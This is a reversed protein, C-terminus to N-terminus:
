VKATEEIEAVPGVNQLETQRGGRLRRLEQDENPEILGAVEYTIIILAIPVWGLGYMMKLNTQYNLPSMSFDFSSAADYGIMILSLALSIVFKLPISPFLGSARASMSGSRPRYTKVYYYLTFDTTLWSALLVFAAIKSLANTAVPQANLRTQDADHQMQIKDWPRLGNM